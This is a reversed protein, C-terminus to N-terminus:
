KYAGSASIPRPQSHFTHKNCKFYSRRCHIYYYGSHFFSKRNDLLHVPFLVGVNAYFKRWYHIKVTREVRQFATFKLPKSLVESFVWKNALLHRFLPELILKVTQKDSVACLYSGM